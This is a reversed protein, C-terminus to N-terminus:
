NKTGPDSWRDYLNAQVTGPHVFGLQNAAMAPSPQLVQNDKRAVAKRSTM